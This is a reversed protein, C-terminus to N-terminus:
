SGRRPRVSIEITQSSARHRAQEYDFGPFYQYHNLLSILRM